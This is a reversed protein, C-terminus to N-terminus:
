PVYPGQNGYWVYWYTNNNKIKLMYTNQFMSSSAGAVTANISVLVITGIPIDNEPPPNIAVYPAPGPGLYYFSKIVLSNLDFEVTKGGLSQPNSPNFLLSQYFGNELFDSVTTTSPAVNNTPVSFYGDMTQYNSTPTKAEFQSFYSQLTSYDDPFQQEPSIAGQGSGNPIYGGNTPICGYISLFLLGILIKM